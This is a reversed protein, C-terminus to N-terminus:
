NLSFLFSFFFFFFHYSNILPLFFSLGPGEYVNCHKPIVIGKFSVNTDVGYNLHVPARIKGTYPDYRALLDSLQAFREARVVCVFLLAFLVLGKYTM